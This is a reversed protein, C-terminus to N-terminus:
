RRETVRNCVTDPTIATWTLEEAMKDRLIKPLNTFEDPSTWLHQYLGQWIQKARYAPQGWQVLLTKIQDITLDYVLPKNMRKSNIRETEIHNIDILPNCHFYCHNSKYQPCIVM